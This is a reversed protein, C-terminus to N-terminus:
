TDQRLIVGPNLLSLPDIAKKIQRMVYFKGPDCYQKLDKVKSRGVGHEASFSGELSKCNTNIIEILKPKLDMYSSNTEKQPPFVNFHLNGDGMHGFCNVRLFRNIKKIEDLSKNIFSEMNELPLSIDHSSIAGVKKNAEPIDERMKWLKRAKSETDGLIVDLIIKRNYLDDLTEFVDQELSNSNFGLEVLLYWQSRNKKVESKQDGFLATLGRGLGKKKTTSM